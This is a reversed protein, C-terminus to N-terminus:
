SCSRIKGALIKSRHNNTRERVGPVPLPTSANGFSVRFSNFGHFIYHVRYSRLNPENRDNIGTCRNHKLYTLKLNIGDPSIYQSALFAYRENEDVTPKWNRAERYSALKEGIRVLQPEVNETYLATIQTRLTGTVFTITSSWAKCTFPILTQTSFDHFTLYSKELFPKSRTYTPMIYGDKIFQGYAAASQYHPVISSELYAFRPKIAADFRDLSQAKISQLKPAVVADWNDEAAQLAQAVRPAAYNQYSSKSFSAIPTYVQHNITEAYPRVADVYPAGYTNYYPAIHPEM